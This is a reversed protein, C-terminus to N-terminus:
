TLTVSGGLSLMGVILPNQMIANGSVTLLASPAYILGTIGGMGNGSLSLGRNNDRTQYILMGAYTGSTAASLNFSANGGLSIGGYTQGPLGFNPYGSGANVILVNAGSVSASGSV